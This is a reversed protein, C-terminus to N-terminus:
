LYNNEFYQARNQVWITRVSLPYDAEEFAPLQSSFYLWGGEPYCGFVLNQEEERPICYTTMTTTFIEGRATQLQAGMAIRDLDSLGMAHSVRMPGDEASWVWIGISSPHGPLKIVKPPDFEDVVLLGLLGGMPQEAYDERFRTVGVFSYPELALIDLKPFPRQDLKGEGRWVGSGSMVGPNQTLSEAPAFRNSVLRLDSGAAYLAREYESLDLTANLGTSLIGLAMALTLLLVLRAVHSPNRAAQWMALTGALGRGSAAIKELINLILPFVRLLITASGLLLFVPSLLLLWDVRPRTLTEAVIGGYLYLRLLLVLGIVLVFVDLYLRQWLPKQAQRAVTRVQSVISRRLAPGIPLLLGVVSALAGFIAAVWAIQPLALTWNTQGVDSLPGAITLLQILALGLVPGILLAVLGIIFAESFQIQFLQGRSSGRSGLIAFEREVQQVALASVMAVYYLALLAVEATLLYLPARVAESQSAYALLTEEINTELVNRAEFLKLDARLGAIGSGLRPIDQTQISEPDLLLRWHLITLVTDFLSENAPYYDEFSLFVSYQADWRNNSQAHLPSKVGFWYSDAANQPRIVGSVEMWATPLAEDDRISLPLRDGVKLAFNVAMEESIVAQFVNDEPLPNDPWGGSLFDVREAMGEQYSLNMRQRDLIVGNSWPFLWRSSLSVYGGKLHDGLHKNLLAQMDKNLAVVEERSYNSSTSMVRLNSTLPDSTLIASRLGLEVVTDVLLPGSSLMATALLVGIILTFLVQWHRTARRLIFPLFNLM